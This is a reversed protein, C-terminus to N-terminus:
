WSAGADGAAAGEWNKKQYSSQERIDEKNSGGRRWEREPGGEKGGERGHAQALARQLAASGSLRRPARARACGLPM